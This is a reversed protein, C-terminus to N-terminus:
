AVRGVLREARAERLFRFATASAARAGAMSVRVVVRIAKSPLYSSPTTALAGEWKAVARAMAEKGGRGRPVAM